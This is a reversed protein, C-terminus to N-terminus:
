NPVKESPDLFRYGVGHVTRIRAGAPNLKRRLTEVHKDLTRTEVDQPYKWVADLIEARTLAKDKNRVLYTVLDFELRTLIREEGDVRVVREVLHISIEGADLRTVTDDKVAGSWIQRRLLTRVRALFIDANFPKALYDDSGSDLYDVVEVSGGRPNVGLISIHKTAAHARLTRILELAADKSPMGDVVVLHVPDASLRAFAKPTDSLLIVDHGQTQLLNQMQLCFKSDEGVIAIIM